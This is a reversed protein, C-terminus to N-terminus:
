DNFLPLIKGIKVSSSVQANHLCIPPDSICCNGQEIDIKFVQIFFPFSDVEFENFLIGLVDDPIDLGIIAHLKNVNLYPTLFAIDDHKNAMVALRMM